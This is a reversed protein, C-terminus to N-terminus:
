LYVTVGRGLSITHTDDDPFKKKGVRLAIRDLNIRKGSANEISNITFEVLVHGIGKVTANVQAGRKIITENEYEVSETVVFHVAQGESLNEVSQINGALRIKVPVRGRIEITKSVKTKAEVVPPPSNQTQKELMKKEEEKRENGKRDEEKKALDRKEKDKREQERKLEGDNVPTQAVPQPDAPTQQIEQNVPVIINDGTNKNDNNSESPQESAIDKPKVNEATEKGPIPKDDGSLIWFASLLLILLVVAGAIIRSKTDHLYKQQVTQLINNPKTLSELRTAMVSGTSVNKRPLEAMQTPASVSVTELQATLIGLDTKRLEPFAAALAHFFEGADAFRNEPKKELAKMVINSLAKPVASNLKEPALPKKKLIEQMLNFDTNSEFPLKGSLLEYMTVGAAYIDSSVSPEKGEIIEPALFEITGIVKNVQTMRQEGAVKAIGFDMLKVIGDPTLILNSPKIDRHFIGKRHAHHLGELAQMFILVVVQYPISKHQRLIEDLNKGEVYEMVMFHQQEQEILNYIVAINPHLLRALVQAEKKFRDLVQPQNIMVTNLMKLAVERGLVNDVAKYVTGMGGQGLKSVIIYNQIQQGIM